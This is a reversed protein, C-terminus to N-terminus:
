SFTSFEPKENEPGLRVHGYRGFAVWSLFIIAGIVAWQYALGLYNAIWAYIVHTVEASTEPFFILPLCVGLVVSCAITFVAKDVVAIKEISNSTM